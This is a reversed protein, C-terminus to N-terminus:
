GDGTGTVKIHVVFELSPEPVPPASELKTDQCEHRRPILLMTM